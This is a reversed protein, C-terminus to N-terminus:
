KLNYGSDHVRNKDTLTRRGNKTEENRRKKTEDGKKERERGGGERQPLLRQKALGTKDPQGFQGHLNLGCTYM